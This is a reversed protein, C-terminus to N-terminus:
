CGTLGSWLLLDVGRDRARYGSVPNIAKSDIRHMKANKETIETDRHHIMKKVAM